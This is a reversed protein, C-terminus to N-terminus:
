EMQGLLNWKNYVQSGDPHVTRSYRKQGNRYWAEHVSSEDVNTTWKHCKRGNDYWIVCDRIKFKDECYRDVRNMPPRPLYPSTVVFVASVDTNSVDTLMSFVVARYKTDFAEM